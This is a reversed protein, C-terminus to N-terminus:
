PFSLTKKVELKELFKDCRSKRIKCQSKLCLCLGEKAVSVSPAGVFKQYAGSM